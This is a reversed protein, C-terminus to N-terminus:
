IVHKCEITNNVWVLGRNLNKWNDGDSKSVQNSIFSVLPELDLIAGKILYLLIATISLFIDSREEGLRESEDNSTFIHHQSLSYVKRRIEEGFKEIVEELHEKMYIDIKREKRTAINMGLFSHKNGRSIVLDVFSVELDSMLEDIKKPNM